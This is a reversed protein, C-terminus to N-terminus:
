AHTHEGLMVEVADAAQFGSLVAAEICGANLGSDIWDGALALNAFGSGDAPLRYQGSGPLSQVYRDSPDTNTRCYQSVVVGDRLRGTGDVADPWWEGARAALFADSAAPVDEGRHAGCFMAATWPQEDAPWDELPVSHSMSSFTDFPAGLGTMTAQPGRWGLAREDPRLWVQLAHTPVTAVHDVMERWRADVALLEACVSPVMGLSVALVAVDFDRGAELHVTAAEPWVCAHSELDHEHLESGAALQTVDPRDPFVPLGRVRTLPEYASRGPALGVQEALTVGDIREGDGAVHLADVRHFFAFEVGRRRLAEYLPAIVVDGMGARLKWFIAGKYDFFMRSALQLGLGAAFRPRSRDGDEYGFVLDYMGRVIPGDITAPSAGHSTLWARFDVDDIAGFGRTLLGDAAIGRVVTLLLDVVPDRRNGDARAFGNLAALLEGVGRRPRPRRSRTSLVARSPVPHDPDLSVGLRVLLALARTLFDVVTLPEAHPGSGPVATNEPFAALWSDPASDRLGIVSAPVFGDRWTRIPCEPDRRERDLEDYCERVLRFANDYYGLWVHLGHEEIRGHVGRSSAAKGGLRAGRQYVTIRPRTGDPRSLKWAAALGAMGGGLICVRQTM